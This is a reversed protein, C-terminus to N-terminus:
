FRWTLEIINPIEFSYSIMLSLSEGRNRQNIKKKMNGGEINNNEDSFALFINSTTPTLTTMTKKRNRSLSRQKSQKNLKKYYDALIVQYAHNVASEQEKSIKTTKTKPNSEISEILKRNYMEKHRKSMEEPKRAQSVEKQREIELETIKKQFAQDLKEKSIKRVKEKGDSFRDIHEDIFM